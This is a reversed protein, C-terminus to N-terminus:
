RASRSARAAVLLRPSHHVSWLQVVSIGHVSAFSRARVRRFVGPNDSIELDALGSMVTQNSTRIRGPGGNKMSKQKTRARINANSERIDNALRQGM